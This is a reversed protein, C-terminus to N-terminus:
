VDVEGFTSRITKDVVFTCILSMAEDPTVALNLVPEYGM